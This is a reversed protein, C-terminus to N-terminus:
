KVKMLERASEIATDTLKEGSILKAVERVREDGKLLKISSVVRDGQKHKEVAYHNNSLGAIQPLHTIAIIQHLSALSKLTQGVKQAIRGSVGTDIEDFILIPLKDSKALSSKLALMIRSVEGGSAVKVLPKPDEGINTSIYFEVRDIGKDDFKYKQKDVVIFNDNSANVKENEIRVDFQSDSIGLTKLAEEVDKKVKKAANKRAQSLKKAAGGCEIKSNDIQKQLDSIKGSFNEALELESGIKERHEIIASVSGGYKKKLLHIVGIRQRMEEIKAPDIDINSKYGRVFAALDNLIAIVSEAENVKESLSKDIKELEYLLNKVSAIRDIISNEDEYVTEYIQNTLNLVKESNELIRLENELIEDENVQPSVADIEKIQFAFLDKKEKLVNEKERLEKLEKNLDNLKVYQTKYDELEKELQAFEDLFDIHTEARLLSQHEHQGHLDVLLDGVEKIINLTVPTDNLFCRNTGKLSVERRIILEDYLDIDNQSLLTKVKRNGSIDFVGEVISKEAGKRVVETSAREGLLLGMADILISKGAGTEGTIINLGGAFGVEINEILAYDKILLSKLM